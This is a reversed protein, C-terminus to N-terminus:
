PRRYKCTIAHVAEHPRLSFDSVEMALTVSESIVWSISQGVAPTWGETVPVRFAFSFNKKQGGDIFDTQNKGGVGAATVEIDGPLVLAAPFLELLNEDIRARFASLSSASLGM